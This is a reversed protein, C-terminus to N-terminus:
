RSLRTLVDEYGARLISQADCWFGVAELWFRDFRGPEREFLVRGDRAVRYRLLGGARALDALDIRDTGLGDVLSARLALEDLDPDALYAFDWDASPGATELARSGFLVLLRLQQHRSAIGAAVRKATDDLGHSGRASETM